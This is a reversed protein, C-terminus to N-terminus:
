NIVVMAKFKGYKTRSSLDSVLTPLKNSLVEIKAAANHTVLNMVFMAKFKDCKTTGSLYSMLCM